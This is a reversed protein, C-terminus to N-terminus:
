NKGKDVDDEEEESLRRQPDHLLWSEGNIATQWCSRRLKRGCPM